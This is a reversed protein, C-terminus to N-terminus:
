LHHTKALKGDIKRHGEDCLGSCSKSICQEDLWVQTIDSDLIAVVMFIYIAVAIGGGDGVGVGAEANCM